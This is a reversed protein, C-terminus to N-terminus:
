RLSNSDKWQQIAEFASLKASGTAKARLKSRSERVDFRLIESTAM